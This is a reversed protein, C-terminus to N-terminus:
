WSKYLDLSCLISKVYCTVFLINSIFLLLKDRHNLLVILILLVLCFSITYKPVAFVLEINIKLNEVSTKKLVFFLFHGRSPKKKTLPARKYKLLRGNLSKIKKIFNKLSNQSFVKHFHFNNRIQTFVSVAFYITRNSFKQTLLLKRVQSVHINTQVKM